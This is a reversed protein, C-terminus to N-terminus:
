YPDQTHTVRVQHALLASLLHNPLQLQQQLQATSQRSFTGSGAGLQAQLQSPPGSAAGVSGNAGSGATGAALSGSGGGVLGQSSFHTLNPSFPHCGPHHSQIFALHSWALDSLTHQSPLTAISHFTTHQSPTQSYITLVGRSLRLHRPPVRVDTNWRIAVTQLGGRALQSGM